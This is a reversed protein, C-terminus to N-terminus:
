VLHALGAFDRWFEISLRVAECDGNIAVLEVKTPIAPVHGTSHSWKRDLLHIVPPLRKEPNVQTAFAQHVDLSAQLILRCDPYSLARGKVSVAM